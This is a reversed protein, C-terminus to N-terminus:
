QISERKRNKNIIILDSKSVQNLPTWERTDWDFVFTDNYYHYPGGICTSGGFLFLKHGVAVCSHYARWRIGVVLRIHYVCIIIIFFSLDFFLILDIIQHSLKLIRFNIRKTKNKLQIFPLSVSIKSSSYLWRSDM